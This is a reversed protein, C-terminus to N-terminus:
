CQLNTYLQYIGLVLRKINGIQNPSLACPSWLSMRLGHSPKLRATNQQNAKQGIHTNLM